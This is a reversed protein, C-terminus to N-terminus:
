GTGRSALGRVRVLVRDAGLGVWPSWMALAAWGFRGEAIAWTGAVVLLLGATLSLVATNLGYRRFARVGVASLAYFIFMQAGVLVNVLTPYHPRVQVLEWWIRLSGLRAVAVPYSLVYRLLAANTIDGEDEPAPMPITVDDEGMWIVLGQYTRAALTNEQGGPTQLSPSLIVVSALAVVAATAVLLRHRKLGWISVAAVGVAAGLGNPRLMVATMSLLLLLVASRRNVSGRNVIARALVVSLAVMLSMFLSDTLIARVWQTIQPNLVLVSASLLAARRGFHQDVFSAMVTAALVLVLFQLAVVGWGGLSLGQDIRLLVLYLIKTMQEPKMEPLAAAASLYGKSDPALVPGWTGPYRVANPVVAGLVQVGIQGITALAAVRLAVARVSRGHASGTGSLRRGWLKTM